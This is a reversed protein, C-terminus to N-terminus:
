RRTRRSSRTTRITAGWAEARASSCASSASRFTRSGCSSGSRGARPSCPTPWRRRRARVGEDRGPRRRRHLLERVRPEVRPHAALRHRHRLDAHGLEARRGRGAREHAGRCRRLGGVSVRQSDRDRGGRDLDVARHVAASRVAHGRRPLDHPLEHGDVPDDGPGVTDRGLGRCEDRHRLGRRHRHGLMTLSSRLKNRLIARLGVKVINASRLIATKM